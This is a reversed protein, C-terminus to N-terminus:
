RVAIIPMYKNAVRKISSWIVGIKGKLKCLGFLHRSGICFNDSVRSNTKYNECKSLRMFPHCASEMLYCNQTKLSVCFIPSINTYGHGISITCFLRAELETSQSCSKSKNYPGWVRILYTVRRRATREGWGMLGRCLLTGCQLRNDKHFERKGCQWWKNKAKTVGARSLENRM